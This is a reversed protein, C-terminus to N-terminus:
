LTPSPLSLEMRAEDNSTDSPLPQVEGTAIFGKSGYLTEAATNGRTVWLSLSTAHTEIAWAAVADVLAAGVGRNRRHPAVWMSVLEVTPSSPEERYGGALGVVEDHLQALFMARDSGVSGASARQVWEAESRDAEAAHTSGFASPADQLAALRLQKLLAADGNEIRRVHVGAGDGVVCRFAVSNDM